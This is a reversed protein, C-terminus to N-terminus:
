KRSVIGLSVSYELSFPNGIALVLEGVELKDSDGLPLVPLGAAEVKLLALDTRADKGVVKAPFKRDDMLHVEIEAAQEIVHQNTLIFGDATLIIGSGVRPREGPPLPPHDQPLDQESGREGSVGIQVVAPRLSKALRIMAQNVRALDPDERTVGASESWLAAEVRNWGPGGMVILAVAALGM